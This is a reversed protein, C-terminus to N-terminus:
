KGTTSTQISTQPIVSGTLLMLAKMLGPVSQCVGAVHPRAHCQRMLFTSPDAQSGTKPVAPRTPVLLPYSRLLEQPIENRM